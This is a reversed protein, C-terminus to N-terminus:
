RIRRAAESRARTTSRAPWFNAALFATSCSCIIFGRCSPRKRALGTVSPTRWSSEARDRLNGPWLRGQVARLGGRGQQLGPRGKPPLVGTPLPQQQALQQPSRAVPRFRHGQRAVDGRDQWCAPACRCVATRRDFDWGFPERSFEDTLSRGTAPEGYAARNEIRALIEHLPGSDTVFVPKGNQEHLLDLKTFVPPLGRLNETTMLADLDQRAVRAAAEEFRDFIEPLAQELVKEATVRIDSAGEEPSRDNGRFFISGGLMAQRIRRRLDGEHRSLRRKEEAVLASEDRTQASREKLKIMEQSRHLEVVDRDIDQDLAAVWFVSKLEGQSRTRMEALRGSHENGEDALALHFPVDGEVLQRGNLSLGAKFIKTQLFNHVPQPQWLGKVIDELIRAEEAPKPRGLSLRQREWDDEVPSPIRYGDDGLRVKHAQVLKDLAAKVEPLLSDADVAPHLTAAINEATRHISQVYQLLCIAKAVPQALPHDVEKRIADIKGRIESSINGSILDYVQDIRALRGLGEDALHVEPHILLQQALKIITRNAGGVHKTAGGQTRLGSVVNIILDIQYPLLPYLDVFSEAALGPLKIDATLRTSDTLRGRHQTFLERLTKEAPANKALVRKSTVESIDSPELHVQLPFRDMLQALEVRRDDLGGVLETLKEQSTVVIWMRGRGVRGLSQVVAQLDLMKGVDRAVFQGVEDIVFVLSHGPRRRSMLEKCREALLGASVDARRIASQQWSDATPYTDVDLDHMVRSAQQVALVIKRKEEDWEKHFLTRYADKFQELRGEGELTIELEALDLDRAYGLSQLFLRYMIETVTQNGTRIGRDTSVDFIVAHTPLQESISNLLVQTKSSGAREGFLKAAGEGKISRNELALGLFKAFSSKGSGFFGSVWVAIGEHPKKPTEWYLDLIQDYHSRISDTIVYEAIEDGIVDEDTQDVKIVEEIRRSIDRAFLSGISGLAM